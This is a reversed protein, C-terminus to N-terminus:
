HARGGESVDVQNDDNLNKFDSSGAYAFDVDQKMLKGQLGAPDASSKAPVSEDRAAIEDEASQM